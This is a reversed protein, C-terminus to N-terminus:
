ISFSEGLFVYTKSGNEGKQEYKVANVRDYKNKQYPCDYAYMLSSYFSDLNVISSRWGHENSSSYNLIQFM